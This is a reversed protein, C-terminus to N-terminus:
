INEKDDKNIKKLHTLREFHEHKMGWGGWFFVAWRFCVSSTLFCGLHGNCHRFSGSRGQVYVKKGEEGVLLTLDEGLERGM